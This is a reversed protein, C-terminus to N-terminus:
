AARKPSRRDTKRRRANHEAGHRAYWAAWRSARMCRPSCYKPLKAAGRDRVVAAGCHPCPPRQAARARRAAQRYERVISLTYSANKRHQELREQGLRAQGWRSVGQAEAFIELIDVMM